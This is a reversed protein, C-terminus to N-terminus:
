PRAGEANLSAILVEEAAEYGDGTVPIDDGLADSIALFQEDTLRDGYQGLVRAAAVLSGDAAATEATRQIQARLFANGPFLRRLALRLSPLRTM